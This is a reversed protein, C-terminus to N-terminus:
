IYYWGLQQEGWEMCGLHLQVTRCAGCITLCQVMSTSQSGKHVCVTNNVGAREIGQQISGCASSTTLGCSFSDTGGTSVHISCATDLQPLDPLPPVPTYCLRWSGRIHSPSWDDSSWAVSAGSSVQQNSPGITGSYVTGDVTVTDYDTETHFTTATLYGAADVTISCAEDVGHSSPFDPSTVCDLGDLLCSGSTVTFADTGATTRRTLEVLFTTDMEAMSDLQSLPLPTNANESGDLALQPKWAAGERKLKFVDPAVDNQM